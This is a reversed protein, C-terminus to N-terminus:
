DSEGARAKYPDPQKHQAYNKARAKADKKKEAEKEEDSRENRKKFYAQSVRMQDAVSLSSAEELSVVSLYELHDGLDTDENIQYVFEHYLDNWTHSSLDRGEDLMEEVWEEFVVELVSEDIQPNLQVNAIKRQRKKRAAEKEDIHKTAERVMILECDAQTFGKSRLENYRIDFADVGEKRVSDLAARLRNSKIPSATPKAPAQTAKSGGKSIFSSAKNGTLSSSNPRRPPTAPKATRTPTPTPKPTQTPTPKPTQTPAPKPTQTPAPKNPSADGYVKGQQMDKPRKDAPIPKLTDTPKVGRRNPNSAISRGGQGTANQRRTNLEAKREAKKAEREAQGYTNQSSNSVRGESVYLDYVDDWSMESLDYGESILQNAYNQVQAKNAENIQVQVFAEKLQRYDKREM